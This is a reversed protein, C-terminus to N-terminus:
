YGLFIGSFQYSTTTTLGCHAGSVVGGVAGEEDIVPIVFSIDPASM